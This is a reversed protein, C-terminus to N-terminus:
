ALGSYYLYMLLVNLGKELLAISGLILLREISASRRKRNPMVWFL